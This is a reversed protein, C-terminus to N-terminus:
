TLVTWVLGSVGQVLNVRYIYYIDVDPGCHSKRFMEPAMYPYTGPRKHTSTMTKKAIQKYGYRM